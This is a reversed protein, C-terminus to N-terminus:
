QERTALLEYDPEQELKREVAYYKESDFFSVRVSIDACKLDATREFSADSVKLGAAKLLNITEVVAGPRWARRIVLVRYRNKPMARELYDLIWLAAVIIATSVATLTYMGFGAAMGVAAVCWLGAATTLGRITSGNKVIAGAGLFGIGTMIGYAIRAPDVRVEFDTPNPWQRDVFSISILMVLASGVAVLINTRFGAQRGRVERELGVMGGAVAAVLLRVVHEAPWQYHTGWQRIVDDLRDIVALLMM